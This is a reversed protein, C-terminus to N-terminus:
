QAGHRSNLLTLNQDLARGLEPNIKELRRCTEAAGQRDGSIFQNIGLYFYADAYGPNLEITRRYAQMARPIDGIGNYFTGLNYHANDHGPVIRITELLHRLAQAKHNNELLVAALNNHIVWNDKTVALTHEFLAVSDRWYSTQTRTLMGLGLLATTAILLAAAKGWAVKKLFDALTWVLMIAIGTLPIYTYRDAISHVGISVFGAVPALTVLFWLWGILLYPRRSWQWASVISILLLLSIAGALQWVPLEQVYPYLVALRVPWFAKFLYHAYNVLAHSLNESPPSVTVSNVAAGNKQVIFTIAASVVSLALFPLKERLLLALNGFSFRTPGGIRGLPWADLLVLVLPLTVLMPKAALGLAFLALAAAYPLRGPRRTYALYATISLMFFLTSLVDKREAAWAVSEVHLPHLAFILAVLTSRWFRGSSRFLIWLLLLTNASHLFLNVLHHGRPNLGFMSVDAMHSLWTLPFWNADYTATLAWRLGELSLGRRVQDNDFLYKTDDYAVFGNDLIGHYAWFIAGIVLLAVPFVYQLRLRAPM